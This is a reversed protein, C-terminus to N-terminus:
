DVRIDKYVATYSSQEAPHHLLEWDDRERGQERAAGRALTAVKVTTPSM